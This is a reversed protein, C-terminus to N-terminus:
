FHGNEIGKFDCLSMKFVQNWTSSKILFAAVLSFYRRLNDFVDTRITRSNKQKDYPQQGPITLIFIPFLLSDFKFDVFFSSKQTVKVRM